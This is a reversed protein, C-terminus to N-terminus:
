VATYTTFFAAASLALLQILVVATATQQESTHVICCTGPAHVRVANNHQIEVQTRVVHLLMATIYYNYM